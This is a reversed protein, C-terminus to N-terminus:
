ENRASSGFGNISFSFYCAIARALYCSAAFPIVRAWISALMLALETPLGASAATLCFIMSRALSFSASCPILM